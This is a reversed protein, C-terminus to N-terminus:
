PRPKLFESPSLARRTFRALRVAGKFYSIRNLRAGVSTRGPGHPALDLAFTGQLVGDVYNRLERGDYVTAVHYWAGVAHLATRNMLAKNASGSQHYSDLFWQAGIVRIELLMRNEDDAGTAPNENLHLWRQEKQGGDPRFIAELTFARAGALPHEDVVLADDVGDFEVAKGLATDVLKPEGLLTTRHGGIGELRDFKWVAQEPGDQAGAAREPRLSSLYAVLNELDTKSLSAYAPMLSKRPLEFQKLEAKLFSRLQGNTDRLHISYEDENLHIGSVAQGSRPTVVVTRHDLAIDADPAVVSERLHRLARRAGVDSLDQGLYGGKGDISHCLSCGSQQYVAAGATADGTVPEAAGQRGLQQVFAVMRWLEAEPLLAAGPMETNPIGNRIVLFLERDSGGHRFRGSNLVSGRGGEGDMGHCHGCRGSYLKRGMEIDAPSTHPNQQPPQQAPLAAAGGLWVGLLLGARPM